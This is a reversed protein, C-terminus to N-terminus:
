EEVLRKLGDSQEELRARLALYERLLCRKCLNDHAEDVPIFLSGCMCIRKETM